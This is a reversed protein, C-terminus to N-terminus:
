NFMRGKFYKKTVKAAVGSLALIGIINPLAMLGNATDAFAWVLNLTVVAGILHFIVFIWKYVIVSNEGLLYRTCRDGYYSWTIATSFAFLLVGLTVIFKGGPLGLSFASSTLDTSTVLVKGNLTLDGRQIEGNQVKLEGTYRERKGKKNESKFVPDDVSSENKLIYASDMTSEGESIPLKGSFPKLKEVNKHNLKKVNGTKVKVSSAQFNREFKKNWAGTTIIVLATMTCIMLTDIFPGVMAVLGERVPEKTKAAAHAIPASGLGAENSFLSRAIGWRLVLFFSAGLFGGTAAVPTFASEFILRFAGPIKEINILLITVAALIYLVAMVPVLRSAVKGIRKIGGIIVLWVLVSLFIGTVWPSIGFDAKLGQAASNSQVMNGIGLAAFATCVAFTGALWKFKKGLGKEIFYMPGGSITGDSHIERFHHSLLCSTYKTAMGIIGGVWLWFVTGPGGWHIATAVGAINGIGITASLAASLAQFHNIEGEDKPDDYKGSIIGFAHFFRRIQVFGMKITLYLGTGLLLPIMLYPGWIFNGNLYDLFSLLVDTM